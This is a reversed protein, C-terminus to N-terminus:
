MTKEKRDIKKLKKIGNMKRRFLWKPMKKEGRILVFKPMKQSKNWNRSRVQLQFKLQKFRRPPRMKLM